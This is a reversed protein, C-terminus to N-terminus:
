LGLEKRGKETLYGKMATYQEENIHVVRLWDNDVAYQWSERLVRDRAIDGDMLIYADDFNDAAEFARRIKSTNINSDM